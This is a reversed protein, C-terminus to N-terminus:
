RRGMRRLNSPTYFEPNKPEAIYLPTGTSNTLRLVVYHGSQLDYFINHRTVYGQVSFNYVNPILGARYIEGRNDYNDIAAISLHDEDIYFVRKGYLHREGPKLTAEVVWVRHLEWRMYDPNIHGVQLLTEYDLGPEDLKYNHYPIYIEKKGVLKWEYKEFAGNFGQNDDVTMLGGPGNPTDFGLNPAQRVRRTGPIYTWAKRAESTYDIPDHVMNMEGKRSPPLTTIGLSRFLTSGLNQETTGLPTSPNNYIYTTDIRNAEINRSGNSFVAINTYEGFVVPSPLGGTRPLWMVEMGNEPFPFAPGGTWNAITEGDNALETNVANWRARDVQVQSYGGDRHSPYIDMRFSDPRLKILAAMGATLKAAHEDVNQANISFLPKEHAYPDPLPTGDGGYELGEPVTTMSGTWAPISGDANGAKEAGVPTLDQGLRAAEEASVKAYGTASVSALLSIASYTLLKKMIAEEKM